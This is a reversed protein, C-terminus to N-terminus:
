IREEAVRQRRFTVAVRESRYIYSTWILGSILATPLQKMKENAEATLVDAILSHRAALWQMAAYDAASYVFLAVIMAVFCSPFWPSKLFFLCICYAVFLALGGVALLELRIVTAYEVVYYANSPDSLSAVSGDSFLAATQYASIVLVALNVFLGLGVSILWGGLGDLHSQSHRLLNM